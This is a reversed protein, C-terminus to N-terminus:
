GEYGKKTKTEDIWGDVLMEDREGVLKNVGVRKLKRKGQGMGDRDWKGVRGCRKGTGLRRGLNPRRGYAVGEGSKSADMMEGQTM